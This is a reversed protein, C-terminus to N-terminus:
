RRSWCALLLSDLCSLFGVGNTSLYLRCCVVPIIRSHHVVVLPFVFLLCSLSVSFSLFLGGVTVTGSTAFNTGSITFIIGGPSDAIQPTLGTITPPLYAFNVTNSSRSLVTVYVNNTAGSGSPTSCIIYSHNYFSTTCQANSVFVSGSTAFNSGIVTLTTSGQTVGSTPTIRDIAPADYNFSLINSATSGVIMQVDRGTGSGSPLTCRFWTHNQVSNTCLSGGITVSAAVGFNSGTLEVSIGGTTPGNSPNILSLTQVDYAFYIINSTQSSVTAQV